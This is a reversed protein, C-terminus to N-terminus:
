ITLGNSELPIGVFESYRRAAEAISEEYRELKVFPQIALNVQNKKITRKWTGAVQGDIVLMPFFVGNNGPVILSAYEAALVASRDKYGLLYEDFGPLLRVISQEVSAVPSYASMWYEHGDLKESCLATQAAEIGQRAESIKLGSWWAFDHLTAPGHSTFYRKALERLSEEESLENDNRVWEDLLVFTQQKEEMPGLCIFGKQALHWLLHYGRQNKTDIGADELLKMLNPRSIRGQDQLARYILTECRAILKSDIELQEQRRKSKNLIRPTLLRLMWKADAAPVCHLTGRIAWTLLIKKDAIAREVEAADADPTRLGIGWLAQAYDQAQMAGLSQIVEHPNMGKGWAIRQNFM